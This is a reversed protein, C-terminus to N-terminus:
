AGPALESLRRARERQLGDGRSPFPQQWRIHHPNRRKGAGSSGFSRAKLRWNGGDRESWVVTAKGHAASVGSMFIDAPKETVTMREGWRGGAYQRLFVQDSENKYGQWALWLTDGDATLAPYDDEYESGTVQEVIPTRYVEVSAGLPFIGETEPVDMPRFTFDGKPVKVHFEADGPARFAITVGVTEVPTPQPQGKENPHMGPNFGPWPHTGCKWANGEAIKCEKTFHYGSVKEIAGKSISVSGDWKAAASDKSGFILTISQLEDAPLTPQPNTIQAQTAPQRLLLIGFGGLFCLTLLISRKTM